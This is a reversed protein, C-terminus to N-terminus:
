IEEEEGKRDGQIPEYKLPTLPTTPTPKPQNPHISIHLLHRLGAFTRRGRVGRM